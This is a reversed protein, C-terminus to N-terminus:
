AAGGLGYEFEADWGSEIAAVEAEMEAECSVCIFGDWCFCQAECVPCDMGTGPEHAEGIHEGHEVSWEDAAKLLAYVIAPFTRGRMDNFEYAVMAFRATLFGDLYGLTQEFRGFGPDGFNQAPADVPGGFCVMGLGGVLCSPPTFSGGTADYYAGQIWGHDTLYRAVERLTVGVSPEAGPRAPTGAEHAPNYTPEM